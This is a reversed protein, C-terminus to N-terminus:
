DLMALDVYLRYERLALMVSLIILFCLFSALSNFVTIPVQYLGTVNKTEVYKCDNHHHRNTNKDVYMNPHAYDTWLAIYSSIAISVVWIDCEREANTLM